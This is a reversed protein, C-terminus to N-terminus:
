FANKPYVLCRQVPLKADFWTAPIKTYLRCGFFGNNFMLVMSLFQNM